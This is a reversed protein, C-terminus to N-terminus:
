FLRLWYLLEREKRLVPASIGRFAKLGPGHRVLSVDDESLLIIAAWVTFGSSCQLCNHLGGVAQESANGKKNGSVNGHSLRRLRAHGLRADRLRSRGVRGFGAGRVIVVGRHLGSRQRQVRKQDIEGLPSIQM